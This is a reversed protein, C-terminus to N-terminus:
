RRNHLAFSLSGTANMDLNSRRYTGFSMMPNTPGQTSMDQGQYKVNPNDTSYPRNILGHAASALGIAGLGLAPVALKMARWQGPLMQGAGWMATAGPGGLVARTGKYAAKAGGYLAGGLLGRGITARSAMSALSLGVEGIGLATAKALGIIM